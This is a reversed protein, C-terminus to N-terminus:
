KKSLGTLYGLLGLVVGGIIAGIVAGKIPTVFILDLRPELGHYQNLQEDNVFIGAILGIIGGVIVGFGGLGTGASSEASSGSGTNSSKRTKKYRHKLGENDHWGAEYSDKETNKWKPVFGEVFDGFDHGLHGLGGTKRSDHKGKRYARRHKEGQTSM